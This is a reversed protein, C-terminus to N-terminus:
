RYADMGRGASIENHAYRVEGVPSIVM